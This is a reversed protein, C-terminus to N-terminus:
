GPESVQLLSPGHSELFLVSFGQANTGSGICDICVSGASGM